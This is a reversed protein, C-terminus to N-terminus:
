QSFEQETTEEGSISDLFDELTARVNLSKINQVPKGLTRDLVEKRASDVGESADKLLTVIMAEGMSLGMLEPRDGVYPLDMAVRILEKIRIDAKEAFRVPHGVVQPKGDKWVLHNTYNLVNQTAMPPTPEPAQRDESTMSKTLIPKKEASKLSKRPKRPKGAKKRPPKEPDPPKSRELNKLRDMLNM